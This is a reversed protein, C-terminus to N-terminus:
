KFVEKYQYGYGTYVYIVDNDCESFTAKENDGIVKTEFKKCTAMPRNDFSMPQYGMVKKSVKIDAAYISCVALLMTTTLLIKKMNM